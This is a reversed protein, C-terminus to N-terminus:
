ALEPRIWMCPLELQSRHYEIGDSSPLKATLPYSICRQPHGESVVLIREQHSPRHDRSIKHQIKVSPYPMSLFCPSELGNSISLTGMLYFHRRIFRGPAADRGQRRDREVIPLRM